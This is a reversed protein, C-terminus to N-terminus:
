KSFPNRTKDTSFQSDETKDTTSTTKIGIDTKNKETYPINKIEALAIDKHRQKIDFRRTYPKNKEFELSTSIKLFYTKQPKIDLAIETNGIYRKSLDLKFIHKGATLQVYSYSNNSIEVNDDGNIKLMPSIVVNSFSAPRYIYIISQNEISPVLAVFISNNSSCSSLLFIFPLLHLLRLIVM